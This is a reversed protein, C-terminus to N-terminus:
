RDRAVNLRTAADVAVEPNGLLVPARELQQSRRGEVGVVDGSRELLRVLAEFIEGGLDDVLV